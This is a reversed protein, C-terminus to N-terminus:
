RSYAIREAVGSDHAYSLAMQWGIVVLLRPL